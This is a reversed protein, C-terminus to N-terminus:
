QRMTVLGDQMRDEQDGFTWPGAEDAGFNSWGVAQRWGCNVGVVAQGCWVVVTM